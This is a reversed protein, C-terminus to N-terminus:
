NPELRFFGDLYETQFSAPVGSTAAERFMQVVGNSPLGFIESGQPEIFEYAEKSREEAGEVHLDMSEADAFLHLITLSTGDEGLYPLFALTRPKEERLREAGERLFEKLADLKGTRVRFRSIFVIPGSM